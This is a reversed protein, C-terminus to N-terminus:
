GSYLGRYLSKYLQENLTKEIDDKYARYVNGDAGIRTVTERLVPKLVPQTIEGAAPALLGVAEIEKHDCSDRYPCSACKSAMRSLAM